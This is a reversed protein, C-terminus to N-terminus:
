KDKETTTTPLRDCMFGFRNYFCYKRNAAPKYFTCNEEEKRNGCKSVIDEKASIRMDVKM